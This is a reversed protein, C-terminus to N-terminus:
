WTTWGITGNQWFDANKRAPTGGLVIQHKLQVLTGGRIWNKPTNSPPSDVKASAVASSPKTRHLFKKRVEARPALEEPIPNGAALANDIVPDFDVFWSKVGAGDRLTANM